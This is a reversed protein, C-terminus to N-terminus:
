TWKKPLIKSPCPMETELRAQHPPKFISPGPLPMILLYPRTPIHPRTPPLTDRHPHAKLGEEQNGSSLRSRTEKTHRHLVRVEEQV